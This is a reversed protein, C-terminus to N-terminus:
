QIAQLPFAPLNQTCDDHVEVDQRVHADRHNLDPMTSHFYHYYYEEREADWSWASGGYRSMQLVVRFLPLLRMLLCPLRESHRVHSTVPLNEKYLMDPTIAYQPPM